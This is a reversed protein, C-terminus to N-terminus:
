DQRLVRMPEVRAARLAPVYAGVLAAACLAATVVAFTLPDHPEVGFLQARLLRTTAFAGALGLAIGAAMMVMGEAMVTRLVHARRGGLAMRIAVEHTRAAVTSAMVGYIGLAALVGALIAFMSVFVAGFRARSAATSVRERMTKLDTIALEPDLAAVQQRMLPMAVRAASTRVTLYVLDMPVQAFPLYIVPQLEAELQGYQVDEVVGVIQVPDADGYPVMMHAHRGVPDEGPFYLRAAAASLVAVRVAGQRDTEDLLRGSRLRIGLAAFYDPSVANLRAQPMQESAGGLPVFDTGSLGGTLPLANSLGAHSVGAIGRVRQQLEAMFVPVREQPYQTTPLELRMTVVQDASFGFDTAHAALFSRTLLGAGALLMLALAVEGTVLLARGSLWRRRGSGTMGGSGRLVASLDGLGSRLAPLLGFIIGSGLTVALTFRLVRGDLSIDHFSLAQSYSMWFGPVATPQLASMLDLLWTALLIGLVGGSVALILGEALFQQSLQWSTAGIARRVAVERQRARSRALLLSAINLCAIMLVLVAAAFVILLANRLTPDARSGAVPVAALPGDGIRLGRQREAVLADHLAVLQSEAAAPTVGPRLRGLVNLWMVFPQLVTPDGELVPANAVNLWLEVGGSEGRFGAPMVGAIHVDQGNVRISSGIVDAAGNFRSQWTAYSLLADTGGGAEVPSLLRGRHPGVGLLTFYNDSVFEARVRVPAQEAAALTVSKPAYAAADTFLAGRGRLLLFHDYSWPIVADHQPARRAVHVLEDPAAYPSPRLLVADIASYLATTAGIGLALILVVIATFGPSRSLTRMAARANWVLADM